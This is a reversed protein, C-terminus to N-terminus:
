TASDPWDEDDDMLELDPPVLTTSEVLGRILNHLLRNDAPRSGQSKDHLLPYKFGTGHLRRGRHPVRDQAREM